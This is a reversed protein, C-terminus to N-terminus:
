KTFATESNQDAEKSIQNIKEITKVLDKMLTNIKKMKNVMGDYKVLYKTAAEGKWHQVLDSRIDGFDAYSGTTVLKNIEKQIAKLEKLDADKFTEM